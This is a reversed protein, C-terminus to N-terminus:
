KDPEEVLVIHIARLDVAVAALLLTDVGEVTELLTAIAEENGGVHKGAANINPLTERQM